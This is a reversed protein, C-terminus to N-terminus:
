DIRFGLLFLESSWMWKDAGGGVRRVGGEYGVVDRGLRVFSGSPWRKSGRMAKAAPASPLASPWRM